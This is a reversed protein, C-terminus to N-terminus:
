IFKIKNNNSLLHTVIYLLAAPACIIAGFLCFFFQFLTFRLYVLSCCCVILFPSLNCHLSLKDALALVFLHHDLTIREARDLLVDMRNEMVFVVVQAWNCTLGGGSLGSSCLLFFSGNCFIHDIRFFWFPSFVWLQRSNWIFQHNDFFILRM